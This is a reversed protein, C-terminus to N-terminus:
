EYPLELFELIGSSSGQLQLHTSSKSSTSFLPEKRRKRGEKALVSLSYHRGVNTVRQGVDLYLKLLHNDHNKSIISTRFKKSFFFFLFLFLFPFSFFFFSLFSLSLSSFFLNGRSVRFLLSPFFLNSQGHRNKALRDFLLFWFLIIM